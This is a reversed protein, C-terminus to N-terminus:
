LSTPVVEFDDRLNIKENKLADEIDVRVQYKGPKLGSLSLNKMLVIRRGSFFQMSEGSVDTSQRLVEGDQLLSYTVKLAPELTSQDLEANYVQFYVGLPMTNNFERSLRPLIKVDGIVFM